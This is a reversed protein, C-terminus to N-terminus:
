LKGVGGRHRPDTYLGHRNDPTGLGTRAVTATGLAPDGGCVWTVMKLEEADTGPGSGPHCCEM